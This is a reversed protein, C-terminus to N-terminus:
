IESQAFLKSSKFWIQRFLTKGFSFPFIASERADMTRRTATLFILLLNKFIKLYFIEIAECWPFSHQQKKTLSYLISVPVAIRGTNYEKQGILSYKIKYTLSLYCYVDIKTFSSHIGAILSIWASM